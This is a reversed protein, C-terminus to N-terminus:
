RSEGKKPRGRKPRNAKAARVSDADLLITSRSGEGIQRGRIVGRRYLIRVAQRTIGLIKSAAITSLEM